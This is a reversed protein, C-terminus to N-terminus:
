NDEVLQYIVAQSTLQMMMLYFNSIHMCDDDTDDDNDNYDNDDDDHGDDDEDDDGDRYM